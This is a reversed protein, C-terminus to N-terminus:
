VFTLSTLLSTSRSPLTWTVTAPWGDISRSGFVRFLMKVCAPSFNFHSVGDQEFFGSGAIARVNRIKWSADRGAGCLFFGGLEHALSNL